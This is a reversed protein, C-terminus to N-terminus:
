WGGSGGSGKTTGAGVKAATTAAKPHVPTAATTKAAPNALTWTGGKVIGEGSTQGPKKDGTFTYLPYGNFTVQSKTASRHIFGIKGLVGPGLSLHKVSAPVLLPPWIKLCVGSCVLKGHAETSLVYLSRGTSTALVRGYTKVAHVELTPKATHRAAPTAAGAAAATLPAVLAVAGALAGARAITRRSRQRM